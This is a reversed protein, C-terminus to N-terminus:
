GLFRAARQKICRSVPAPLKTLIMRGLLRGPNSLLANLRAMEALYVENLRAIEAPYVENLSANERAMLKHWFVAPHHPAATPQERLSVAAGASVKARM